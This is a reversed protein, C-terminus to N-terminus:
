SKDPKAGLTNAQFTRPVSHTPLPGMGTLVIALVIAIAIVRRTRIIFVVMAAIVIIGVIMIRRVIEVLLARGPRKGPRSETVHAFLGRKVTNPPKRLHM